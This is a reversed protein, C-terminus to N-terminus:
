HLMFCFVVGDLIHSAAGVTGGGVAGGVLLLLLQESRRRTTIVGRFPFPIISRARTRNVSLTVRVLATRDTWAKPPLLLLASLPAYAAAARACCSCSDQLSAEDDADHTAAEGAADRGGMRPFANSKSQQASNWFHVVVVRFLLLAFLEGRAASSSHTRARERPPPTAVAAASAVAARAFLFVGRCIGRYPQFIRKWARSVVMLTTQQSTGSRLLDKPSFLSASPKAFAKEPPMKKDSAKPCM